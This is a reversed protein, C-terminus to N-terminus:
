ARPRRRRLRLGALAVLGAALLGTTAPEPVAAVPDLRVAWCTGGIDACLEGAIQGSGNADVLRTIRYGEIPDIWSNIDALSPLAPPQPPPPLTVGYSLGGEHWLALEGEHGAEASYGYIRSQNDILLATSLGDLLTTHGNQWLFPVSTGGPELYTNGVVQDLDNLSVSWTWYGEPGLRAVNQGDYFSAWRQDQQNQGFLAHGRENVQLYQFGGAMLLRSVDDPQRALFAQPQTGEVESWWGYVLGDETLGTVKLCCTEGVPTISLLQTLQYHPPQARVAPVALAAFLLATWWSRFLKKAHM